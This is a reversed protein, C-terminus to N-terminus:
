AYRLNTEYIYQNQFTQLFLVQRVFSDDYKICVYIYIFIYMIIDSPRLCFYSWQHFIISSCMINYHVDRQHSTNVRHRHYKTSCPSPTWCFIFIHEPAPRIESFANNGCRTRVAYYLRIADDHNLNTENPPRRNEHFSRYSVSYRYGLM